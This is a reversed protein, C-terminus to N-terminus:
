PRSEMALEPGLEFPHWNKMVHWFHSQSSPLCTTKPFTLLAAFYRVHWIHPTVVTGNECQLNLNYRRPGHYEHNEAGNFLM